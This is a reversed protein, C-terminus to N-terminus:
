ANRGGLWGILLMGAGCLALTGPEPTKAPEASDKGPWGWVDVTTDIKLGPVADQPFPTELDNVGDHVFPFIDLITSQTVNALSNGNILAEFPGNTKISLSAGVIDFGMPITFDQTYFNSGIPTVWVSDPFAVLGPPTAIPAVQAATANPLSGFTILDARCLGALAFLLLSSKTM